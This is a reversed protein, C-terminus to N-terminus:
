RVIARLLVRMQRRQVNTSHVFFYDYLIANLITFSQTMRCFSIFLLNVQSPHLGPLAPKITKEVWHQTKLGPEDTISPYLSDGDENFPCIDVSAVYAHVEGNSPWGNHGKKAKGCWYESCVPNLGFVLRSGRTPVFVDVSSAYLGDIFFDVRARDLGNGSTSNNTTTSTSNRRWRSGKTNKKHGSSSDVCPSTHWEFAYTHYKEDEVLPVGAPSKACTNVYGDNNDFLYSNFNVTDFRGACGTTTSGCLPKCNAPIEIDIEHNVKTIWGSADPVFQADTEGEPM